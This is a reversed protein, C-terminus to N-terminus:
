SEPFTQYLKLTHESHGCKGCKLDVTPVAGDNGLRGSMSDGCKPCIFHFYDVRAEGKVGEWKIGM